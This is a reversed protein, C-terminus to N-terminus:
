ALTTLCRFGQWGLLGHSWGNMVQIPGATEILPPTCATRLSMHVTFVIVEDEDAQNSLPFVTGRVM